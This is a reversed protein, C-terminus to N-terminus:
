SCCAELHCGIGFDNTFAAVDGTLSVLRREV